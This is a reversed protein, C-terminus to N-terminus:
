ILVNMFEAFIIAFLPQIAGNGIAVLCGFLIFFWEPSNM